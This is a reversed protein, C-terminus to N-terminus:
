HLESNRLILSLELLPTGKLHFTGKDHGVTARANLSKEGEIKKSIEGIAIKFVKTINGAGDKKIGICWNTNYRRCHMRIFRKVQVLSVAGNYFGVFKYRAKKSNRINGNSTLRNSGGVSRSLVFIGLRRRHFVEITEYKCIVKKDQTYKGMNWSLKIKKKGSEIFKYKTPYGLNIYVGNKKIYLSYITPNEVKTNRPIEIDRESNVLLLVTHGDEAYQRFGCGIRDVYLTGTYENIRLKLAQIDEKTLSNIDFKAPVSNCESSFVEEIIREIPSDNCGVEKISIVKYRYANLRGYTQLIKTASNPNLAEVTALGETGNNIYQLNYIKM